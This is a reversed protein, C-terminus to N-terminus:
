IGGLILLTQTAALQVGDSQRVVFADVHVPNLDARPAGAGRTIVTEVRFHAGNQDPLQMGRRDFYATSNAAFYYGARRQTEIADRALGSAIREEDVRLTMNFSFMWANMLVMLAVSVILSAILMEVLTLARTNRGTQKIRSRTMGSVMTRLDAM